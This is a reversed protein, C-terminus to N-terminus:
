SRGARPRGQYGPLLVHVRDSTWALRYLQGGLEFSEASYEPGVILACPSFPPLRSALLELEARDSSPHNGVGVHEIRVRELGRDALLARLPYEFHYAGGSLYEPGEPLFGIETCGVSALLAAVGAFDQRPGSQYRFQQEPRSTRFVSREGAVPHLNSGVLFPLAWVSMLVAAIATFRAHPQFAVGVVPSWLVFLPLHLRSHFPQWKLLLCFLGFAALLVVAYWRATPAQRWGAPSALWPLVAVILLLHVLNGALAPDTTLTRISFGRVDWTTRPDDPEIGLWRHGSVILNGLAANVAPVPTALHISANRVVNSAFAPLSYLQNTLGSESGQTAVMQRPGFFVRYIEYNRAFHPANLALAVLGILPVSRLWGASWLPTRYPALGFLLPLVYLYATGKTHV